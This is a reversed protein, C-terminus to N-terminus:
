NVMKVRRARLDEEIEVMLENTIPYFLMLIGGLIGIIAPFLSVLLVIGNLGETTQDQNAIFGYYALVWGVIAGGLSLGLKLAFLSASMVLGTARRGNKWESYDATDTYIAWQL